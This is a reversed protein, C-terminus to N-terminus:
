YLQSFFSQCTETALTEAFFSRFTEVLVFVGETKLDTKTRIKVEPLSDQTIVSFKSYRLHLRWLHSKQTYNVAHCMTVFHAATFNTYGLIDLYEEESNLSGLKTPETVHGSHGLFSQRPLDQQSCGRSLLGFTTWLSPPTVVNGVKSPETKLLIM